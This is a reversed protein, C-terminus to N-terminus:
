RQPFQRAEAFIFLLKSALIGLLIAEVLYLTTLSAGYSGATGTLMGVLDPKAEWLKFSLILGALIYSDVIVSMRRRIHENLQYDAGTVLFPLIGKSERLSESRRPLYISRVLALLGLRSRDRKNLALYRAYPKAYEQRGQELYRLVLEFTLGGSVVTVFLVALLGFVYNSALGRFLLALVFAPIAFVYPLVRLKLGALQGRGSILDQLHSATILRALFRSCLTALTALFFVAFGIYLIIEWPKFDSSAVPGADEAALRIYEDRLSIIEQIPTDSATIESSLATYLSQVSFYLKIDPYRFSKPRMTRYNTTLKQSELKELFSLDIGDEVYQPKAHDYPDTLLSWHLLKLRLLADMVDKDAVINDMQEIHDDIPLANPNTTTALIFSEVFKNDLSDWMATIYTIGVGAVASDEQGERARFALAVAALILSALLFIVIERLM